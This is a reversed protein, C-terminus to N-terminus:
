SFTSGRFKSSESLWIGQSFIPWKQRLLANMKLHRIKFALWLSARARSNFSSQLSQDYARIYVFLCLWSKLSSNYILKRATHYLSFSLSYDNTHMPTLHKGFMLSSISDRGCFYIYCYLPATHMAERKKVRSFNIGVRPSWFLLPPFSPFCNNLKESAKSQHPFTTIKSTFIRPKIDIFKM